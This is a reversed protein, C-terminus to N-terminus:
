YKEAEEFVRRYYEEGHPVFQNKFIKKHIKRRSGTSDVQFGDAQVSEVEDNLLKILEKLEIQVLGVVEDLQLIYNELKENSMYFYIHCHERDMYTKGDYEEKYIVAPILESFKVDIGLEEKIERVGDELSEGSVLHGASSTDYLNPSTDKLPHRKQFLLFKKDNEKKIVFCQFTRHWYGNKHVNSRLAKGILKENEDFVDLYEDVM